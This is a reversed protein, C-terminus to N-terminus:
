VRVSTVDPGPDFDVVAFPLHRLRVEEIDRLHEVRGFIFGDVLANKIGEKGARDPMLLLNAGVEDCAESVGLLFLDFVPNRLADAVSWKSPAQVAIANFKGARLLRGKPDPGLYELSRAAEEVRRRVDPRVIEPNNFVNSATSRSVGALRAVDILRAM